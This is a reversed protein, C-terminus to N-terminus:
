GNNMVKSIYTIGLKVDHENEMIKIVERYSNKKCYHKILRHIEKLEDENYYEYEIKGNRIKSNKILARGLHKGQAKRRENGAKVKKSHQLLFYYNFWLINFQMPLAFESDENFISETASFIPIGMDKFHYINQMAKLPHERSFRDISFVVIGIEKGKEQYEKVIADIKSAEPREYYPISGSVGNDVIIFKIKHNQYKCWNNTTDYNSQPNQNKNDTSIRNLYILDM